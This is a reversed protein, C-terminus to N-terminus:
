DRALEHDNERETPTQKGATALAVAAMHKCMATGNYQVDPCTCTRRGNLRVTYQRDATFSRVRYTGDGAAEISVTGDRLAEAARAARGPDVNVATVVGETAATIHRRRLRDM